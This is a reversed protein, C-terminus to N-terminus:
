RSKKLANRIFYLTFLMILSIVIGIILIAGASIYYYTIIPKLYNPKIDGNYYQKIDPAEGYLNYYYWVNYNPRNDPEKEYEYWEKLIKEKHAYNMEAKKMEMWDKGKMDYYKKWEDKDGHLPKNGLDYCPMDPWDYNPGCDEVNGYAAIIVYLFVFIIHSLEIM